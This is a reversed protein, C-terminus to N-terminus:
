FQPPAVQKKLPGPAIRPFLRVRYAPTISHPLIDRLGHPAM